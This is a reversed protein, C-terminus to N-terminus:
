GTYLLYFISSIRDNYCLEALWRGALFARFKSCESGSEVKAWSIILFITFQVLLERDLRQEM